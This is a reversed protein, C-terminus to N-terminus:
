KKSEKTEQGAPKIVNLLQQEMEIMSISEDEKCFELVDVVDKPYLIRLKSHGLLDKFSCDRRRIIKEMEDLDNPTVPGM